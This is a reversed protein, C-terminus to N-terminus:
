YNFADYSMLTDDTAAGKDKVENVVGVIKADGGTATCQAAGVYSAGIANLQAATLAQGPQLLTSAITAASNSFTCAVNTAQAGVNTLSLGTFMGYNRDMVLPASVHATANAPNFAEYASGNAAGRSIQNVIAVLPQSASNVTVAASGVFGLNVADSVGTGATGCGAPMQSNTFAFTKSQNAPITIQETCQAGPFGASPKYTVTVNTSSTGTNMIQIGTGSKYYNSSVLPMVPFNSAASPAFGDYSFLGLPSVQMAVAVLPQGSTTSVTAAGVFGAALCTNTSQDFTHAAGPNISVDEVCTGPAYAVHVAAAATGTNQVNFWTNNGYNAKMALPLNITTAGASLGSYSAQRQTDNGLV